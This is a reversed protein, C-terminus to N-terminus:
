DVGGRGPCKTALPTGCGVARAAPTAPLLAPSGRRCPTSRPRRCVRRSCARLHSSHQSDFARWRRLMGPRLVSRDTVGRPDALDVLARSLGLTLESLMRLRRDDPRSGILAFLRARRSPREAVLFLGQWDGGAQHVLHARSPPTSSSARSRSPCTPRQMPGLARSPSRGASVITERVRLSPSRTVSSWCSMNALPRHSGPLASGVGYRGPSM